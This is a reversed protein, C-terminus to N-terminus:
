YSENFSKIKKGQSTQWFNRDNYYDSFAYTLEEDNLEALMYSFWM